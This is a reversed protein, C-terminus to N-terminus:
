RRTLPALKCGRMQFCYGNLNSRGSCSFGKSVKFLIEKSVGVDRTLRDPRFRSELSIFLGDDNRMFGSVARMAVRRM